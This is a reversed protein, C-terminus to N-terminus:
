LRPGLERCFYWVSTLTTVFEAKLFEYQVGSKTAIAEAEDVTEKSADEEANPKDVEKAEAKM